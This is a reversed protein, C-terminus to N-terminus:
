LAVFDTIPYTESISMFSIFQGDFVQWDNRQKMSLKKIQPFLNLPVLIHRKDSLTIDMYGRKSFDLNIIQTHINSIKCM